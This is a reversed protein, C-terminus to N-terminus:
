HYLVWRGICSIYSISTQDRPPSSERSSPMAVWELIRAQFIGRSLSAQHAITWLTWLIPCLQLLKACCLYLSPLAWLFHPPDYMGHFSHAQFLTSNLVASISLFPMRAAPTSLTVAHPLFRHMNCLLVLDVYHSPWDMDSLHFGDTNEVM